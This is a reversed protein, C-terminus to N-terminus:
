LPNQVILYNKFASGEPTVDAELVTGNGLTVIIQLRASNGNGSPESDQSVIVLDSLKNGTIVGSVSPKMEGNDLFVFSNPAGEVGILYASWTAGVPSQLGFRATLPVWTSAGTETTTWPKIVVNGDSDNELFGSLWQLPEYVTVAETYSLTFTEPTWDAVTFTLRADNGLGVEDVSLSYIHNRLIATGFAPYDTMPVDYSKTEDSGDDNRQLAVTIRFIPMGEAVNNNLNGIKQEPVYGIWTTGTMKAADPETLSWNDPITGLRYTYSDAISLPKDPSALNPTHVQQGDEYTLADAPLQRAHDQSGIFEASIIKPYGEAGKNQINDVVRVKAISRLLDMEGLYVLRDPRSNYLDAQSVSFAKTGFMPANKKTNTYIGAADSGAPNYINSMAYTWASLQSIVDSYTQGNIAAWSTESTSCNACLLMRFSIKDDNDPHLEVGLLDNLRAKDIVVNVTYFGPAGIIFNDIDNSSGLDLTKFILKEDNATGEVKAFIFLACDNIDIGDEFQKYESDVEGHQNDARSQAHSDSTQMVFSLTIDEGSYAPCDGREEIFSCGCLAIASILTLLYSKM